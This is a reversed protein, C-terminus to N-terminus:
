IPLFLRNDRSFISRRLAKTRSQGIGRRKRASAPKHNTMGKNGHRLLTPM